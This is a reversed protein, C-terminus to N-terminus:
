RSVAQYLMPQSAPGSSCSWSGVLRTLDPHSGGKSSIRLAPPPPSPSSMSTMNLTATRLTNVRSRSKTSSATATARRSQQQTTPTPHFLSQSRHRRLFLPRRHQQNTALEPSAPSLSINPIQHIDEVMEVTVNGTSKKGHDSKGVAFKPPNKSLTPSRMWSPPPERDPDDTDSTSPTSLRSEAVSFDHLQQEGTPMESGDGSVITANSNMEQGLEAEATAALVQPSRSQIQPLTHKVFNGISKFAQKACDLFPYM